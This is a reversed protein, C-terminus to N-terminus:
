PLVKLYGRPKNGREVSPNELPPLSLAESSGSLASLEWLPVLFGESVHHFHLHHSASM